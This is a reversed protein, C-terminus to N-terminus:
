GFYRFIGMINGFTGFISLPTTYKIDLILQLCVLSVSFVWIEAYLDEIGSKYSGQIGYVGFGSRDQVIVTRKVITIIINTM